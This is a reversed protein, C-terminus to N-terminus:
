LLSLSFLLLLIKQCKNIDSTSFLVDVVNFAFIAPPRQEECLKNVWIKKKKTKTSYKKLEYVLVREPSQKSSSDHKKWIIRVIVQLKKNKLFVSLLTCRLLIRIYNPLQMSSKRIFSDHIGLERNKEMKKCFFFNQKQIMELICFSATNGNRLKCLAYIIRTFMHIHKSRFWKKHTETRNHASCIQFLHM